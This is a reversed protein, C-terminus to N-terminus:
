LIEHPSLYLFFAEFGEVAFWVRIMEDWGDIQYTSINQTFETGWNM